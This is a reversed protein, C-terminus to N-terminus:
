GSARTSITSPAPWLMWPSLGTSSARSSSDKKLAHAWALQRREAVELQQALGAERPVCDCLLHEGRGPVARDPADPQAGCGTPEARWGVFAIAMFLLEAHGTPIEHHAAALRRGDRRERGNRLRRQCHADLRARRGLDVGGRDVM